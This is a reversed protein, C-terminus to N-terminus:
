KGSKKAMKIMRQGKKMMEVKKSLKSYKGLSDQFPKNQHNEDMKAEKM